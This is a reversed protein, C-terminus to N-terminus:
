LFSQRDGSNSQANVGNFNYQSRVRTSLDEGINRKALALKQNMGQNGKYSQSGHHVQTHASTLAQSLGGNIASSQAM